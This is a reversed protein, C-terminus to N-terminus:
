RMRGVIDGPNPPEPQPNFGVIDLRSPPKSSGGFINAIFDLLAQVPGSAAGSEAAGSPSKNVVAHTIGSANVIYIDDGNKLGPSDLVAPPLVGDATSICCYKPWTVNGHEDLEYGCPNASSRAVTAGFQQVAEPPTLCVWAGAPCQITPALTPVTTPAATVTQGPTGTAQLTVGHLNQATASKLTSIAGPQVQIHSGTEPIETLAGLKEMTATVYVPPETAVLDLPLTYKAYLPRTLEITHHGPALGLIIPTTGAPPQNTAGDIFVSAGSPESSLHVGIYVQGTPMPIIASTPLPPPPRPTAPTASYNVAKVASVSSAGMSAASVTGIVLLCVLLVAAYPKM